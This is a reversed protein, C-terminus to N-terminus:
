ISIFQLIYLKENKKNSTILLYFHTSVSFLQFIYLSHNFFIFSFILGFQSYGFVAGLIGSIGLLTHSHV